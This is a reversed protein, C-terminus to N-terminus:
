RAVRGADFAQPLAAIAPLWVRRYRELDFPPTGALYHSGFKQGGIEWEILYLRQDSAYTRLTTVQWNENARSRFEGAAATEGSDADWVRYRVDADARSDNGVIVPLRKGPGPEGIIVSVPQQARRIYHYALKVGFYYDVIADSFQPWGDIVNWWLIGSTRWKRLRTAEIFFKKAEAQTIQSALAFTELDDPVHGFLERVQNAMLKIRDRDRTPHQWHYVAHEQWEPNNDWPWLKEPSIFRRISAVNPCGHYGQEGIFHASHLTYFPSKFYGRPGWLHQEPTRHYANAVPGVSPPVYPSSPVFARHPDLRHVVQPIVERTLRNHEPSLGDSVYAMDIENDGCWIALSPHNRLKVVVHEAERRVEALFDETQPYRCCAFAFDQWVLIGAEDCLDFFRADEYVNGGWCRIMNCGLDAFLGVAREVRGADRSHFADLPVWNSGKVMIPVDNVRFLFHSAPDAPADVRRVGGDAAEPSWMAGATETRDVAVKRIGIRDTREAVVQGDKLLQATVTYLAPEGYGKPWWLRADSVPIRCGGAIFELPWDFAFTHSECVGRFRLWYGDTTAADTRIQFRVGLTAGEANISVTWYYMQEVAVPPREEVWVSRWIGASVARPMIDWGWVHPAKRIFLGEERHEWSMSAADYSFRRAANVASGLRVVICNAGPRLAGTVDFRHEILANAARGVEIGNLWITALTDLGAFILDYSGRGWGMGQSPLPAADGGETAPLPAPPTPLEFERAYWWEHFEYERLRRINSGYFPEPIIGAAQMDLEVNGPVHAAIMQPAHAALDDPGRVPSDAEPFFALQWDGDLSIHIV